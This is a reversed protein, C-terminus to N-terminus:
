RAAPRRDNPLLWRRRADMARAVSMTVGWLGVASRQWGAAAAPWRLALLAGVLWVASSLAMLVMEVLALGFWVLFRCLVMILLFAWLM